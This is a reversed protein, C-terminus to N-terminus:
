QGKDVQGEYMSVLEDMHVKAYVGKVKAGSTVLRKLMGKLQYEEGRFDIHQTTGDRMQVKVLWMNVITM